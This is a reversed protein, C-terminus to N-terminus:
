SVAACAILRSDALAAERLEHVELYDSDGVMSLFAARSPYEVGIVLDWEPAVPGIVSDQAAAAFVIRGGVRSLHPMVAAAYRGYAEAGDDPKFRLLNVMVVPAPDDAAALLASMQDETPTLTTVNM